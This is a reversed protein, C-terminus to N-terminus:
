QPGLAHAMEGLPLPLAWSVFKAGLTPGMTHPCGTVLRGDLMVMLQCLTAVLVWRGFDYSFQRRESLFLVCVYSM